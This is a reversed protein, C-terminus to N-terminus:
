SLGKANKLIQENDLGACDIKRKTIHYHNIFGSFDCSKVLSSVENHTQPINFLVDTCKHVAEWLATLANIQEPYFGLFPDLKKGHVVVGTKIPREDYGMLVYSKQYKTYYANSIEVGVSNHNVARNGAHWAINQMDMLQYITGDNDICFQVSVRKKNLIQVCAHSNLCVDWHNVFMKIPRKKEGEYSTYTNKNLILGNYDFWHVVKDWKIPFFEGNYVISSMHSTSTPELQRLRSMRDTYIRRYTSPGCFGDATINHETQFKIINSILIDDFNCANFWAPLWGLDLSSKRNYAIQKISAM